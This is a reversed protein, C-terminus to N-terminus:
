KGKQKQLSFILKLHALTKPVLSTVVTGVLGLIGLFVGFRFSQPDYDFIVTHKGEEMPIARFAYDARYIPVKTGNVKAGWGKYYPDALFLLSKKQADVELTVKNPSYQSLVVTGLPGNVEKIKPDEELIVEQDSKFHPDLLTSIIKKQDKLVKFNGVLFAHPFVKKNKYFEYKDDKYILEFQDKPYIWFPFTWPVQDDARKHVIYKVDLLNLIRYTYSSSKPLFVASRDPERLNGDSLAGIFEGYRKIYLADYGEVSPLHYYIATEAGFNGLARHYGAIKSFAETTKTSPFVLHRSDFPMWKVAFRLMDFSTIFLLAFLILRTLKRYFLALFIVLIGSIFILTPLILNSRAITTKELPIFLKLGLIAWLGLFLLLFAGFCYIAKKFNKNRFDLILQDYGFSALVIFAFSYVVIIRSAASTSLVPLHLGIVFDLLPTSFSLFLALLGLAFLFFTQVRKKSIIAYIALMLPIVGIYANWEAYHGFWDNRTVPNGFFDPALFTPIYGWPIVEGKQFINSRYSQAYFEISPLIQPMCLLLGFVTYLTLYLTDRINKTVFFKYVLFAVVVLLFYLSVQFHGSLFSLPITLSLLFLFKWKKTQYYKEIAFLALPLFLIAYGLTGYGMWVTIFGCFMFAVSSLIGGERSVRLSRLFIYMFLGALLPQLLILLSWADKFPFVFFLFNLPSFVASQYNALHPTGSFSYPNWLPIHGSKWIEITFHRWPYIQTIIDPMASNKVPGWFKEYASWPAFNNVQYASPYPVRGKLFYPHAFIFWIAFIFIIPWFRKITKM